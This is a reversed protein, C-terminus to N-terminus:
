LGVQLSFYQYCLTLILDSVGGANEDNFLFEQFSKIINTHFKSMLPITANRPYCYKCQNRIAKSVSLAKNLRKTRGM